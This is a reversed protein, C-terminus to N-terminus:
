KSRIYEYCLIFLTTFITNVIIRLLTYGFAYFGFAELMYLATHHLLILGLIYKTYDLWGLRSVSLSDQQLNTTNVLLGIWTKRVYCLLVCAFTHVGMTNSFIDIVLGMLFGLLMSYSTKFAFPLALFFILYIYPSVYGLFNLNNFLLVQLFLLLVFRLLYPLVQPM